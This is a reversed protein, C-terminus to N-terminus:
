KPRSKRSSPTAMPACDEWEAPFGMLWRSHAPNLLLGGSDTRVNSSSQKLGHTVDALTIGDHHKSNPNSRGSTRNRGGRSDNVTPTPWGLIQAAAMPLTMGGVGKTKGAALHRANRARKTEWTENNTDQTRPTPWGISGSVGTRRELARLAFIPPGAPMDWQKWTLAFEPCGNVDMRVQLKNELSWQLGASPSSATFLPGSIDNMPMAKEAELARFRSVHVPAPGFQDNTVGGPLGSPM